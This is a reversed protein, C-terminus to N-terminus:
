EGTAVRRSMWVEGTLLAIVGAMVLWWLELKQARQSAVAAEPAAAEAYSLGPVLEKVKLRDSEANQALDAEQPDSQVVFYGVQGRASTIKYVGPERTEEYLAPWATPNLARPQ